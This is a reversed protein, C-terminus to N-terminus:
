HELPWLNTHQFHYNLLEAGINGDRDVRYLTKGRLLCGPWQEHWDHTDLDAPYLCRIRGAAAEEAVIQQMASEDLYQMDPSQVLDLRRRYLIRCEATNRLLQLPGNVTYSSSSIMDYQLLREGTLYSDWDGWVCDWDGWGWWAYSAIIETYMDALLPRLECIAQGRSVRPDCKRVPVGAAQSARSEFADMSCPIRPLEMWPCFRAADGVLVVRLSQLQAARRLFQKEWGPAEGWWPMFIAAVPM